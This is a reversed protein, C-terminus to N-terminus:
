YVLIVLFKSKIEIAILIWEDRMMYFLSVLFTQERFQQNLILKCNQRKLFFPNDRVRWIHKRIRFGLFVIQATSYFTCPLANIDILGGVNPQVLKTKM